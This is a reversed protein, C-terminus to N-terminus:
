NSRRPPILASCPLRPEAPLAAMQVHATVPPLPLLDITQRWEVSIFVSSTPKHSITKRRTPVYHRGKTVLRRADTGNPPHEGLGTNNQQIVPSWKAKPKAAVSIKPSVLRPWSCLRHPLGACTQLGLGLSAGGGRSPCQPPPDLRVVCCRLEMRNISVVAFHPRKSGDAGNEERELM